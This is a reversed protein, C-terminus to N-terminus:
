NDISEPDHSEPTIGADGSQVPPPTSVQQPQITPPPVHQQVSPPYPAPDNATQDMPVSVTSQDQEIPPQQVAPPDPQVMSQVPPDPYNGQYGYEQQVPAVMAPTPQPDNQDASPIGIGVQESPQLGGSTIAYSGDDVTQQPLGDITPGQGQVMVPQPVPDPDSRKKKKSLIVLLIVIPVLIVLVLLIIIILILVLITVIGAASEPAEPEAQATNSSGGEGVENVANIWYEYTLGNVVDTDNYAFTTGDVTAILVYDLLTDKRYINYGSIDSGGDEQPSSWMLLAFGDGSVTFLNIVAGPITM